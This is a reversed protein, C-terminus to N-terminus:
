YIGVNETDVVGMAVVHGYFFMYNETDCGGVMFSNLSPGNKKKLVM